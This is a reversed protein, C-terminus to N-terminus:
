EIAFGGRMMDILITGAREADEEAVMLRAPCQFRAATDWHGEVDFVFAQVGEAGLRSRAMAAEMSTNFAHLLVLAMALFMGHDM